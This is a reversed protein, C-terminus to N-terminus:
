TASRLGGADLHMVSGHWVAAEPALLLEIAWAVEEVTPLRGLSTRSGYEAWVEDFAAGREEAVDRAIRRLRSTDMPGPVLAHVTVGKPGYVLSIQKMLNILGANIAGPGAEHPGPELGLTGAIAAFRSGPVLRDRVGHLLRVAGGIKVDAGVALLAPDITEVSGRVPLGAALVALAVDEGVSDRLTGVAANDSIDAVCPRVDGGEGALTALAGEDRGVAVVPLGRRVLRRTLASGVAGTAGVVVACGRVPDPSM